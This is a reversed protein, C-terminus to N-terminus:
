NRKLEMAFGYIKQPDPLSNAVSEKDQKCRKAWAFLKPCNAEISFNGLTEYTYFWSTFPVLAVDVFGINDGGFYLKDGLEQELTKLCEVFERKAVEQEEGKGMWVRKGIGYIQM